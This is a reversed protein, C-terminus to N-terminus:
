NDAPRNGHWEGVPGESWWFIGAHGWGRSSHATASGRSQSDHRPRDYEGLANSNMDYKVLNSTAVSPRSGWDPVSTNSMWGGYYCGEGRSLVSVGAGYSIGSISPNRPPGFSDWQNELVDYAFLNFHTPPEEYFEGGFLYIRKNLDDAWM